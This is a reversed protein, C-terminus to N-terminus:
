LSPPSVPENGARTAIAQWLGLYVADSYFGVSGDALLGNVGGPHNSRAARM